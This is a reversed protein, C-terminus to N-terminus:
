KNNTKTKQPGRPQLPKSDQGLQDQQQIKHRPEM